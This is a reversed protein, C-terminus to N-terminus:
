VPQASADHDLRYLYLDTTWSGARMTHHFGYILWKNSLFYPEGDIDNWNLIVTSVGLDESNFMRADGDVTVRLRMVMNLMNLFTNRAKGGIYNEYPVGVDGGSHEPVSLVSTAWIRKDEPRPKTFALNSSLQPNKKNQTNEDSIVSDSSDPSTEDIYKGSTSSIGHTVLRTQLTGIFSDALMEWRLVDQAAGGTKTNVAFTGLDRSILDAQQKIILRSSGSNTQGSAVIWNTKDETVGSSWELMSFIFTKPDQRYPYWINNKSDLTNSIEKGKRCLINQTLMNKSSYEKVVQEIVDAITGEFFGGNADGGNLIYSPPDIGIFEIWGTNESGQSTIDTLFATYIPTRQDTGSWSLSFKIETPTKGRIGARATDLYGQREQNHVIEKLLNHYNDRIRGRIIYGGNIFSVWEFKEFNVGVNVNNNGMTLLLSPAIGLEPGAM